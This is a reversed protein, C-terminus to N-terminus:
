CKAGSRASSRLRAAQVLLLDPKLGQLVFDRNFGKECGTFGTGIRVLVWIEVIKGREQKGELKGCVM